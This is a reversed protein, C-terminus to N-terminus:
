SGRPRHSQRAILFAAVCSMKYPYAMCGRKGQNPGYQCAARELRKPGGKEAYSPPIPLGDDELCISCLYMRRFNRFLPHECKKDQYKVANRELKVNLSTSRCQRRWVYKEGGMMDKLVRTGMEDIREKVQKCLQRPLDPVCHQGASHRVCPNWDIKLNETCNEATWYENINSPHM